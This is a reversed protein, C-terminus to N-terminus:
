SAFEKEWSQFWGVWQLLSSSWFSLVADHTATGKQTQIHLAVSISVWWGLSKQQTRTKGHSTPWLGKDWRLWGRLPKLFVNTILQLTRSDAAGQAASAPPESPLCHRPMASPPEGHSQEDEFLSAWAEKHSLLSQLPLSLFLFAEELQPKSSQCNRSHQNKDFGPVLTAWLQLCLGTYGMKEQFCCFHRRVFPYVYFSLFQLQTSYDVVNKLGKNRLRCFPALVGFLPYCAQNEGSAWKEGM